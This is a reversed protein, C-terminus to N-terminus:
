DVNVRGVIGSPTLRLLGHRLRDHRGAEVLERHAVGSNPRGLVLRPHLGGSGIEPLGPRAGSDDTNVGVRASPRLPAREHFAQGRALAYECGVRETRALTG